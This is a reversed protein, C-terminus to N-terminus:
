QNDLITLLNNSDVVLLQIGRDWVAKLRHSISNIMWLNMMMIIWVMCKSMNNIEKKVNKKNLWKKMNKRKKLMKKNELIEKGNNRSNM